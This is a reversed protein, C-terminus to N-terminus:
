WGIGVEGHFAQLLEHIKWCICTKEFLVQVTCIFQYKIQNQWFFTSKLIDEHSFNVQQLKHLPTKIEKREKKKKKKQRLSKAFNAWSKKKQRERQILFLLMRPSSNEWLVMPNYTCTKQVKWAGEAMEMNGRWCWGGGTNLGWYM